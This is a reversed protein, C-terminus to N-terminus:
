FVRIRRTLRMRNVPNAMVARIARRFPEVRQAWTWKALVAERGARGMPALHGREAALARVEELVLRTEQPVIIGPRPGAPASEYLERVNGVDTSLFPVGCASAELVPNPTGESSSMCAFLDLSRYWDPMALFPRPFKSHDQIRLEVGPVAGIARVLELNKTPGDTGSWGVVFKDGKRPVAPAGPSFLDADVGNQCTDVYAPLDVYARMDSAIAANTTLLADCMALSERLQDVQKRTWRWLFADYVTVIIRTDPRLLGMLRLDAFHPFIAVDVGGLPPPEHPGALGVIEFEDSLHRALYSAVRGPVWDGNLAALFVVPKPM